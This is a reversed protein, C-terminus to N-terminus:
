AYKFIKKIYFISKEVDKIENQFCIKEDFNLEWSTFPNKLTSNKSIHNYFKKFRKTAGSRLGTFYTVTNTSLNFTIKQILNM